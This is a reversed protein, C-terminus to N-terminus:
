SVGPRSVKEWLVIDLQRQSGPFKGKGQSRGSHGGVGLRAERGVRSVAELKVKTENEKKTESVRCLLWVTIHLNSEPSEKM